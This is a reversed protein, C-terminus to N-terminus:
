TTGTYNMHVAVGVSDTFAEASLEGPRLPPPEPEGSGCAALALIAVIVLAALPARPGQRPRTLCM